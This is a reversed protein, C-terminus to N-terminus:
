TNESFFLASFLHSFPEATQALDSTQPIVPNNGPLSSTCTFSHSSRGHCDSVAWLHHDQHEQRPSVPGSHEQPASVATCRSQGVLCLHSDQLGGPFPSHYLLCCSLPTSLNPTKLFRPDFHHSM